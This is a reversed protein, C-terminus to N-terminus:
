RSAGKLSNSEGVSCVSDSRRSRTFRMLLGLESIVTKLLFADSGDFQQLM